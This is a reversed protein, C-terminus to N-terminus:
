APTKPSSPNKVPKAGLAKGNLQEGAALRKHQPVKPTGTVPVTKNM